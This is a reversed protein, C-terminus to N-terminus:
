HPKKALRFQISQPNWRLFRDVIKMAEEPRQQADYLVALEAYAQMLSPDLSASRLLEREAGGPDGARKLAIGLNLAFTASRPEAEVAWRCLQVAKAPSSTNLYVAELAGLASPDDAQENAPLRELRRVGAAVLAPLNEAAGVELDAVALDREAFNEPPARWTKLEHTQEHEGAVNASGPRRIRHDTVSVHAINSTERKPMHCSICERQAVPHAEPLSPHCSQCVTRVQKERDVAAGHPDHCTGCWLRRGSARWCRSDALEEVQSVAPQDEAARRSVYTTAIDEMRKGAHFDSWSKGRHVIRAAGELHCQECVSDREDPQLRAPNVINHKSPRRMHETSMGHCRGCSIAEISGSLQREDADSFHAANAHCFLCNGTVPRDFDLLSLAEFGPSIDWGRKAYWSLPSELLSSGIRVAYSRGRTGSGIQFAIPYEAELGREILRHTMAGNRVAVSLL